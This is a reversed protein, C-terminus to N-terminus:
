RAASSASRAPSQDPKPRSISARPLASSCHTPYRLGSRWSSRLPSGELAKLAEAYRAADKVQYLGLLGVEGGLAPTAATAVALLLASTFKGGSFLIKVSDM